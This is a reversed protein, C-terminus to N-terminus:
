PGSKLQALRDRVAAAAPPDNQHRALADALQNALSEVLTVRFTNALLSSPPLPSRARWVRTWLTIADEARGTQLWEGGVLLASSIEMDLLNDPLSDQTALVELLEGAARIMAPRHDAERALMLHAYLIEALWRPYQGALEPQRRFGELLRASNAVLSSRIANAAEAPSEKASRLLFSVELLSRAGDLHSRLSNDLLAQARATEEEAQRRLNQERWGYAALFGSLGTLALVLVALGAFAGGAVAVRLASRRSIWPDRLLAPNKLAAM